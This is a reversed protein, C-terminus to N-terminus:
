YLISSIAEFYKEIVVEEDFEREVKERGRLGMEEREQATLLAIRIM